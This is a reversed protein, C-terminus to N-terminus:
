GLLSFYNEDGEGGKRIIIFEYGYDAIGMWWYADIGIICRWYLSDEISVEM